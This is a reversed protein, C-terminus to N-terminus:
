GTVGSARALAGQDAFLAAYRTAAVGYDGADNYLHASLRIFGRGAWSSVAVETGTTQALYAGLRAASADDAVLGSPLSLLRMTPAPNAVDAVSGGIAEAVIAAGGDVLDGLDKRRERFGLTELLDLATSAALWGTADTTGPYDFAVPFGLPDGWSVIAPVVTPQREPAVYLVGSGRPACTWKHLNGTWFDGLVPRDILGPAHAGDVIVPIGRARGLEAVRQAPLVKATASTIQDIVICATEDDVAREFTAVVADDDADLDVQLIEVGCGNEAAVRQAALVVAGYAHSTLLIRQGPRLTLSRLAVNVGTTANTVLAIDDASAELYGGIQERTAILRQPLDRFWRMPNAEAAGQLRRQAEQTVVPVAGFSGHNLYRLDPDLTWLERVPALRAM